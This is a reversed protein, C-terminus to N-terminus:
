AEVHQMEIWKVCTEWDSFQEVVFNEKKKVEKNWSKTSMSALGAAKPMVTLAWRVGAANSKAAIADDAIFDIIEKPFVGQSDSMDSIWIFGDHEKLVGWACEIIEEFESLKMHQKMWKVRLAPIDEMWQITAYPLFDASKM